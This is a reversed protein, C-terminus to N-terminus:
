RCQGAADPEIRRKLEKSYQIFLYLSAASLFFLAAMGTYYILPHSEPSVWLTTREGGLYGPMSSKNILRMGGTFLGAMFLLFSTIGLASCFGKRNRLEKSRLHRISHNSSVVEFESPFYVCLLLTPALLLMMLDFVWEKEELVILALPFLFILPVILLATLPNPKGYATALKAGCQNCTHPFRKSYFPFFPSRSRSRCRPCKLM